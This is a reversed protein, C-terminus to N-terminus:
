MDYRKIKEVLTTRNLNLLAAARAKAAALKDSERQYLKNKLQKMATAKNKFQSREAQSACVLGTPMHTIRVASSTKNVHQGGPGGSRSFKWTLEHAPIVVGGRILLADDM